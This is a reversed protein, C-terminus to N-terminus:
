NTRLTRHTGPPENVYFIWHTEVVKSINDFGVFQLCSDEKVHVSNWFIGTWVSEWLILYIFVFHVSVWRCGLWDKYWKNRPFQRHVAIASVLASLYLQIFKVYLLVFWVIEKFCHPKSSVTLLVLFLLSSIFGGLITFLETSALKGRYMQQLSLIVTFLLISYLMSSGPGAM